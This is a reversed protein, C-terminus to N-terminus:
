RRSSAVDAGVGIMRESTDDGCCPGSQAGVHRLHGGRGRRRVRRRARRRPAAAHPPAPDALRPSASATSPGDGRARAWRPRLARDPRSRKSGLEARRRPPPPPRRRGATGATAAGRSAEGGRAAPRRRASQRARARPRRPLDLRADDESPRPHPDRRAGEDDDADDGGGPGGDGDSRSPAEGRRGTRRRVIRPELSTGLSSAGEDDDNDGLRSARAGRSRAADGAEALAEGARSPRARARLRGDKNVRLARALPPQHPPESGIRPPSRGHRAVVPRRRGRSPSSSSTCRAPARTTAPARARSRRLRRPAALLVPDCGNWYADCPTGARGGLTPPEDVHARERSGAPASSAARSEPARGIHRARARGGRRRRARRRARRRRARARAAPERPRRSMAPPAARAARAAAPARRARRPERHVVVDPRPRITPPGARTRRSSARGGLDAVRRAGQALQSRADRARRGARARARAPLTWSSRARALARAREFNQARGDAVRRETERGCLEAGRSGAAAAAAPAPTAHDLQARGRRRVHAVGLAAREDARRACAARAGRALERVLGIMARARASALHARRARATPSVARPAARAAARSSCRRCPAFRVARRWRSLVLAHELAQASPGRPPPRARGSPPRARRRLARAARPEVRARDGREGVVHAVLEVLVARAADIAARRRSPRSSSAAGASAVRERRVALERQRCRARPRRRRHM